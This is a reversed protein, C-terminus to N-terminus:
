CHSWQHPREARAIRGLILVFTVDVHIGYLRAHLHAIDGIPGGLGHEPGFQRATEGDREGVDEFLRGGDIVGELLSREAGPEPALVCQPPIRRALLPADSTFEAFCNAWRLYKDYFISFVILNESLNILLSNRNFSLFTGITRPPRGPIIYVHGLADIAPETLLRTRDIGDHFTRIKFKGSFRVLLEEVVLLLEEVVTILPFGFDGGIDVRIM